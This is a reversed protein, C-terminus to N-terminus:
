DEPKHEKVVNTRKPGRAALIEWLQQMTSFRQQRGDEVIEVIGILHQPDSHNRRYIRVVYSEVVDSEKV